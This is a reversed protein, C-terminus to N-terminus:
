RGLNPQAVEEGICLGTLSMPGADVRWRENEDADRCVLTFDFSWTSTNVPQTASWLLQGSPDVCGFGDGSLYLHGDHVVGVTATFPLETSAVQAGSEADVVLLTKEVVLFLRGGARFIRSAASPLAITWRLAGTKPELALLQKAFAVYLSDSQPPTRYTM